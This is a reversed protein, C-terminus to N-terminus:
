CESCSFPVSHAPLLKYFSSVREHFFDIFALNESTKAFNLNGKVRILLRLSVLIRTFKNLQNGKGGRLTLQKRFKTVCFTSSLKEIQNNRSFASSILNPPHFSNVRFGFYIKCSRLLNDVLLFCKLQARSEIAAM